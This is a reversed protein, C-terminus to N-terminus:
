TSTRAPSDVVHLNNLGSSNPDDWDIRIPNNFTTPFAALTIASAIGTTAWLVVWITLNRIMWIARHM